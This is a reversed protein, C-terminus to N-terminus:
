TREKGLVGEQPVRIAFAMDLITDYKGIHELQPATFFGQRERILIMRQLLFFLKVPIL